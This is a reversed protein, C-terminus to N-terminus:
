AAEPESAGDREVSPLPQDPARTREWAALEAAKWFRRGNIRHPRPFNLKEDHLWRWLTMECVNGYRSRVQPANLYVTAADISANRIAGQVQELKQILDAM